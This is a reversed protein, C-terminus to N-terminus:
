QVVMDGEAMLVQSNKVNQFGTLHYTGAESTWFGMDICGRDAWVGTTFAESYTAHDIHVEVWTDTNFGCGKIRIYSNAASPDPDALITAALVRSGAPGHGKGNGGKDALASGSLVALTSIGVVAGIFALKRLM